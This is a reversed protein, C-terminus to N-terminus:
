ATEKTTQEAATAQRTPTSTEARPWLPPGVVIQREGQSRWVADVDLRLDAVPTREGVRRLIEAASSPMVPLLMVAAVRVAEAADFLVASL